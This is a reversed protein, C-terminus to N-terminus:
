TWGKLHEATAHSLTSDDALRATGACQPQGYPTQFEAVVLQLRKLHFCQPAYANVLWDCRRGPGEGLRLAAGDRNLVGRPESRWAARLSLSGQLLLLQV